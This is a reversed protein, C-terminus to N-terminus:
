NITEDFVYQVKNLYFVKKSQKEGNEYYKLTQRGFALSANDFWDILGEVDPDKSKVEVNEGGLNVPNISRGEFIENGLLIKSRIENEELYSLTVKDGLVNIVVNEEQTFSRRDQIKFTNDWLIDGNANFAVVIAHTFTYGMFYATSQSTSPSYNGFTNNNVTYSYRPFYAEAFLIYEDGRNIIKHVFIRYSFKKIKGREKKREIREMIRKEKKPNFHAFFNNLEAFPIYKNLQQQGNVFKTLYLGKSVDLSKFSYTGAVYQLGGSFTTSAADLHSKKDDPRIINDQILIGDSTFSKVRVTYRKSRLRERQILSFFGTENDVKLDLIKAKTDFFGPVVEPVRKEIDYIVVVPRFNTEGALILNNGVSEFHSIELPFVTSITFIKFSQDRSNIHVVLFKDSTFGENLLLFYNGKHYEYGLLSNLLNIAKKKFGFV